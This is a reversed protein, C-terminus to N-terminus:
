SGPPATGLLPRVAMNRQLHPITGWTWRPTSARDCGRLRRGAMAGHASVSTGQGEEQQRSNQTCRHFRVAGRQSGFAPCQKATDDLCTGQAAQPGPAEPFSPHPSPGGLHRRPLGRMSACARQADTRAPRQWSHVRTQLPTHPLPGPRPPRPLGLMTPPFRAVRTFHVRPPCVGGSRRPSPGDPRRQPACATM